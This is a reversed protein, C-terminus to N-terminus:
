IRYYRFLQALQNKAYEGRSAFQDKLRDSSSAIEKPVETTMSQIALAIITELVEIATSENEENLLKSVSEGIHVWAEEPVMRGIQDERLRQFLWEDDVDGSNWRAIAFDLQEQFNM